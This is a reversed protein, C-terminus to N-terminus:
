EIVKLIPDYCYFGHKSATGDNKIKVLNYDIKGTFYKDTLKGCIATGLFIPHEIGYRKEYVEVKDGEKAQANTQIYLERAEEKQRDLEEIIELYEQKTM